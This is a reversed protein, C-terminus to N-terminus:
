RVALLRKFGRASESQGTAGDPPPDTLGYRQKLERASAWDGRQLAALGTILAGTLMLGAHLANELIWPFDPPGGTTGATNGFAINGSSFLVLYVGTLILTFLHAFHGKRFIGAFLGSIGTVLYLASVALSIRLVHFLLRGQTFQPVFGAIGLPTLALGVLIAFYRPVPSRVIYRQEERFQEVREHQLVGPRPLELKHQAQQALAM